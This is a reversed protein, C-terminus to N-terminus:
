VLSHLKAIAGGPIPRKRTLAKTCSAATPQTIRRMLALIGVKSSSSRGGTSLSTTSELRPSTIMTPPVPEPLDVESAAIDAVAVLLGAPVDDGDLVRDLVHVGVLAADDRVALH